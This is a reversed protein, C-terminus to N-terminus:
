NLKRKIKIISISRYQIYIGVLRFINLINKGKTKITMTTCNKGLQYCIEPLFYFTEM